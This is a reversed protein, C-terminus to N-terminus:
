IALIRFDLKFIFYAKCGRDKVKYTRGDSGCVTGPSKLECKVTCKDMRELTEVENDEAETEECEGDQVVRIFSRTICAEQRLKCQNTFTVNKLGTHGCVPSYIKSCPKTATSCPDTDGGTVVTVGDNGPCPGTSVVEPSQSLGRRCSEARMECENPYTVGDSGCVPRFIRQCFECKVVSSENMMSLTQIRSWSRVKMLRSRLQAVSEMM